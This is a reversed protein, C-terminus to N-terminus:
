APYRNSFAPRMDPRIHLLWFIKKQQLVSFHRQKNQHKFMNKQDLQIFFDPNRSPIQYGTRSDPMDTDTGVGWGHKENERDTGSQERERGHNRM